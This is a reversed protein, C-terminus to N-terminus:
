KTGQLEVAGHACSANIEKSPPHPLRRLQGSNRRHTRYLGSSNHRLFTSRPCSALTSQNTHNAAGTSASSLQPSVRAPFHAPCELQPTFPGWHSPGLQGTVLLVMDSSSISSIRPAHPTQFLCKQLRM